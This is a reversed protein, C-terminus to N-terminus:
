KEGFEQGGEGMMMLYGGRRINHWCGKLGGGEVCMRMCARVCVHVCM